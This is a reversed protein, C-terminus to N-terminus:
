NKTLDNFTSLFCKKEKIITSEKIRKIKITISNNSIIQKEQNEDKYSFVNQKNVKM